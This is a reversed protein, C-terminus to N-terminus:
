ATAIRRASAERLVAGPRAPVFVVREVEHLEAVRRGRATVVLPETLEAALALGFSPPPEALARERGPPVTPGIRAIAGRTLLVPDQLVLLDHVVLGAPVFVLWRRHLGHLARVAVAAAPWGVVIALAGAGWRETALLLPGTVGGVVAIAWALEVPGLVVAAPARLVFRRETGYSAGDVFADGIPATFVVLTAMTALALGVADLVEPEITLLAWADAALAAPVLVRAATLTAPLPVLLVVLTVAWLAWSGVAVATRFAPSTDALAAGLTAGAIVPLALWLARLPWLGLRDLVARAHDIATARHFGPKTFSRRNACAPPRDTDLPM